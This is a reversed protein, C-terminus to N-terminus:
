MEIQASAPALGPAFRSPPSTRVHARRPPIPVVNCLDHPIDVAAGDSRTSFAPLNWPRDSPTRASAPLAMALVVRPVRHHLRLRHHHTRRHPPSLFVRGEATTDRHRGDARQYICDTPGTSRERTRSEAVVVHRQRIDEGARTRRPSEPLYFPIFRRHETRRARRDQSAMLSDIRAPPQGGRTAIIWLSPLRPQLKITAESLSQRMLLIDFWAQRAFSQSVIARIATAWPWHALAASAFAPSSNNASPATACSRISTGAASISIRRLYAKRRSARCSSRSDARQVTRSPVFAQRLTAM